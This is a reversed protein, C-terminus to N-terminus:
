TFAHKCSPRSCLKDCSPNFAAAYANVVNCIAVVGLIGRRKRGLQEDILRILQSSSASRDSKGADGHTIHSNRPQFREAFRHALIRDARTDARPPGTSHSTM